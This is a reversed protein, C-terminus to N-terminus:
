RASRVEVPGNYGVHENPGPYVSQVTKGRENMVYVASYHELNNGVELNRIQNNTDDQLEVIYDPPSVNTPWAHPRHVHVSAAQFLQFTSGGPAPCRTEAKVTFM